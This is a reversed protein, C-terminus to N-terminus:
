RAGSSLGCGAAPQEHEELTRYVYRLRYGLYSSGEEQSSLEVGSPVAVELTHDDLWRLGIGGHDISHFAVVNGGIADKV